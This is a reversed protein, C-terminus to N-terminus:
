AEQAVAVCDWRAATSNYIFGVYVTKSIVTTTPMTAGVARYAKASGTTWTIARATGDDTIRFVLKDGNNPSGADAAITVAGSQATAVFMDYTDSDVGFPTGFSTV